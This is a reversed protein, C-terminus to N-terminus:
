LGYPIIYFVYLYYQLYKEYIASLSISLMINDHESLNLHYKNSISEMISVPPYQTYLEHNLKDYLFNDDYFHRSIFTLKYKFAYNRYRM